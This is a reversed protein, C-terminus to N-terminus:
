TGPQWGRWGLRDGAIHPRLAPPISGSPVIRRAGQVPRALFAHPEGTSRVVGLGVVEGRNNIGFPLVLYLSSGPDVLDNLDAYAGNQWIYARCTVLTIDCSAGVMQGRENIELPTNAADSADTSLLGLDRMGESRTWLFGHITGHTSGSAGVVQGQNNVDAAVGLDADVGGLNGLYTPSGNDWLVAHPGIAFGNPVTNACVGTSGVVQGRDNNRLAFGVNDGAIPRLEHAHGDRTWMVAEFRGKLPANCTADAVGTEAVGVAEGAGNIEYAAANNGGLTPLATLVGNQWVAGRCFLGTHFVCFDEALPDADAREALVAMGGAPSRGGAQSNPGGLTGVDAVNCESWRFGHQQGSATAAYGNVGGGDDIDIAVSFGGDFGSRALNTQLDVLTYAVSEHAQTPSSSQSFAHQEVSDTCGGTLAGGACIM